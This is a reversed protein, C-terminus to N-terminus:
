RMYNVKYVYNKEKCWKKAASVKCKHKEEDNIWGKVEELVIKDHYHILFDPLYNKKIGDMVYSIHIGHKTTWSVVSNDEDLEIMRKLEYSSRYYETNGDKTIYHGYKFGRNKSPLIKGSSILNAMRNSHEEIVRKRVKPNKSWHSKSIKDGWTIKRGKMLKRMYEKHESTHKHGSHNKQTCSRCFLIKKSNLWSRYSKYRREVGCMQCITFWKSSDSSIKYM